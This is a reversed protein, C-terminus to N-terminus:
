RIQVNGNDVNFWGSFGPYWPDLLDGILVVTWDVFERPSQSLWLNMDAEVPSAWWTTTGDPSSANHGEGNDALAIAGWWPTEPTAWNTGDPGLFLTLKVVIKALNGEVVLQIVDGDAKTMWGGAPGEPVGHMQSVIKGSTVGNKTVANFTLTNYLAGKEKLWPIFAQYEPLNLNYTQASGAAFHVDEAKGLGGAQAAASTSMAAMEGPALLPASEDSCGALVFALCAMLQLVLSLTKM